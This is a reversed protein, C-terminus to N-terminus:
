IGKKNEKGNAGEILCALKQKLNIITEEGKSLGHLHGRELESICGFDM